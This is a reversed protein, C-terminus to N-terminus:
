LVKGIGISGSDTPSVRSVNEPESPSDPCKSFIKLQIIEGVSFRRWSCNEGVTTKSWSFVVRCFVGEFHDCAAAFNRKSPHFVHVFDRATQMDSGDTLKLM